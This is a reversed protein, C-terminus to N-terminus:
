PRVAARVSPLADFRKALVAGDGAVFLLKVRSTAGEAIAVRSRPVGLAEAILRVLAANARNDEPVARVRAALVSRGDSLSTPGALEDRASRPTLRVAIRLGDPGPARPGTM